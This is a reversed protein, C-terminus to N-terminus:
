HIVLGPVSAAPNQNQATPQGTQGSSSPQGGPQQQGFQKQLYRNDGIMAKQRAAIDNRMVQIAGALQNKSYAAKLIDLAQQRGTDTATGGGMIKSYEDALGLMSTHFNTADTSGFETAAANFVKNLTANNFKPLNRAANQAIEIAGGPEVMGQIMKLTNQTQANKAYTYDTQAQAIDFPKGFKQMSYQNAQELKQNYDKSRKSLQSPDMNGEVLSVPISNMNYTGDQNLFSGSGGTAQTAEARAKGAEAMNKQFEGSGVAKARATNQAETNLRNNKYAQLAQGGGYLTMIKAAAQPDKQAFNMVQEDPETSSGLSPQFRLIADKLGPDSQIAAKLDPPVVYGATGPKKGADMGNYFTQLRSQMMNLANVQHSIMAAAAVPYDQPATGSSVLGWDQAQKYWPKLTQTPTVVTSNPSSGPQKTNEYVSVRADRPVSVYTNDWQPVGNIKMQDGTQPDIRPVTGVPIRVHDVVNGASKAEQESLIKDAGEVGMEKLDSVQDAYSAVAQDHAQKDLQGLTLAQTIAQLNAHTVQARQLQATQQQKFDTQADQKGQDMQQQNRQMVAGAARAFSGAAGGNNEGRRTDASAAMGTLAGALIHKWLAGTTPKTTVEVTKGTDPDVKYSVQDGGGLAHLVSYFPTGKFKAGATDPNQISQAVAGPM